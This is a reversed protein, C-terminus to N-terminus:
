TPDKFIKELHEAPPPSTCLSVLVTAFVSFMEGIAACAFPNSQQGDLWAVVGWLMDADTEPLWGAKLVVFSIGGAIFGALAGAKTARRWLQGLILPGATAAMMGGLGIWVLLAINLDLLNWALVASGVLVVITAWRSISLVRRDLVAEDEEGKHFVPAISRRYIDNAFVQATSIVLGDATSMVAALIGVGLLAALWTPFLEIFLAPMAGNPGSPADLLSDGLVARAIVGGFSMMALLMGFTVCVGVFKTHSVGGELAWLKNGIHPLLGLPLHAIFIVLIDWYSDFLISESNIPNLLATDQEGLANLMNSFGGSGAGMVFMVILLIALMLMLFGQVGDTLVDAHAGGLTVYVALVITTILMAWGASLGLMQEFMVLGAVLQGALYFMLILSFVAVILRLADSQYRDGLAEPISRSGFLSGTRVIGKFCLLVGAYVGLPYVLAYLIIASFGYQYGLGPLGLFTAGSATTATLTFALFIMGYGGRATAFDDSGTVKKMGTLGFFFM